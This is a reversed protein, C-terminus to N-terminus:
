TQIRCGPPPRRNGLQELLIARRLKGVEPNDIEPCYIVALDGCQKRTVNTSYRLRAKVVFNSTLRAIHRANSVATLLFGSAPAARSEAFVNNNISMSTTTRANMQIM